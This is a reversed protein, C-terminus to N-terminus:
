NLNLWQSGNWGQFKKTVNDFRLCGADSALPESGNIASVRKIIAGSTSTSLVVMNNQVYNYGLYTGYSNSTGLKNIGVNQFGWYKLQISPNLISNSTIFLTPSVYTSGNNSAYNAAATQFATQISPNYFFRINVWGNPAPANQTNWFNNMCFTGEKGLVKSFYSNNEYISITSNFALTNAGSGSPTKEIGFLPLTLNDEYFYYTWSGNTVTVVNPSEIALGRFSPMGIGNQNKIFPTNNLYHGFYTLLPNATTVSGSLNLRVKNNTISGSLVTISSANEIVFDDEIGNEWTYSDTAPTLTFEIINRSFNTFHVDSIQPAYIGSFSGVNYLEHLIVDSLRTGLVAYGNSYNYHCNDSIKQVGNTSILRTNPLTLSLKRHAEYIDQEYTTAGCGKRVQFIYTKDFNYDENLDAMYSNFKTIYYDQGNSGDAEGQYFSFARIKTIKADRIRNLLKGYNTTADTINADNRQFFSIPKGPDAQNFIAIPINQSNLINLGSKFAIGGDTSGASVWGSTQNRYTRLFPHAVENFGTSYAMNSQGNYLYVDGAVVDTAEQLLVNTNSYLKFTYNALEAIIQINFSFPASGAVYTLNQAYTNQLVNEKYVKVNVSTYATTQNVTGTISITVANTAVNRAYLQNNIPFSTITTQGYSFISLFFFLQTLITTYVHKM